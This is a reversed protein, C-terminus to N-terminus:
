IGHSFYAKLGKNVYLPDSPSRFTAESTVTWAIMGLAQDVKQCDVNVVVSFGKLADDEDAVTMSLPDIGGPVCRQPGLENFVKYKGREIGSYALQTARAELFRLTTSAQQLQTIQVIFAAAGALVVLLFVVSIM